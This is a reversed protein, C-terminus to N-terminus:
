LLSLIIYELFRGSHAKTSYNTRKEQLDYHFIYGGYTGIILYRDDRSVNVCSIEIILLLYKTFLRCNCDFVDSISHIKQSKAIEFVQIKQSDAQGLVVFRDDGSIHTSSANGISLNTNFYRFAFTSGDTEFSHVEQKSYIDLVKVKKEESAIILFNSDNSINISPVSAVFKILFCTM